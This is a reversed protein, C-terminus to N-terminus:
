EARLVAPKITWAQLRATEMLKPANFDDPFIVWGWLGPRDDPVYKGAEFSGTRLPCSDGSGLIFQALTAAFDEPRLPKGDVWAVSPMQGNRNLIALWERAAEIMRNRSFSGETVFREARAAPGYVFRLDISELAPNPIAAPDINQNGTHALYAALAYLGEAASVIRDPDLTVFTISQSFQRAIKFVDERSLPQGYVQDPYLSPIQRATVIRTAPHGIAHDLLQELAKYAQEREEPSKVPPRKWEERPPNAGHAFNVGDWFAQHVFECPHYYISIIGGGESQLKECAADFRRCADKVDEETWGDTRVVCEGLELINLVGGYWFPRNNLNVHDTVDLYLPINWERLAAYSEPTWSGGPQGYCSANVGFIQRLWELGVGERRIFEQVGENWDLDRSYESPTPHISHYTSHYAIDNRALALIVDERGRERLVRAKEGVIKFTAQTKRSTFIGAIRKAADDSEPLIYDETDFWFVAYVPAGENGSGSEDALAPNEWGGWGWLTAMILLGTRKM